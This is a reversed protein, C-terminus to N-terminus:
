LSAMSRYPESLGSMPVAHLNHIQGLRYPAAAEPHEGGGESPPPVTRAKVALFATPTSVRLSTSLSVSNTRPMPALPNAQTRQVSSFM